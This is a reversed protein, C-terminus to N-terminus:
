ARTAQLSSGAEAPVLATIRFSGSPWSPAVWSNPRDAEIRGDPDFEILLKQGQIEVAVCPLRTGDKGDGPFITTRDQDAAVTPTGHSM